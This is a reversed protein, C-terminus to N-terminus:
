GKGQNAIVEEGEELISMMGKCPKARSASGLLSLCEDLRAVQKGTEQLHQEFLRQLQSTPCGEGDQKAVGDGFRISM